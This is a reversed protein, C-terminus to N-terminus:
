SRRPRTRDLRSIIRRLEPARLRKEPTKRCFGVVFASADPGTRPITLLLTRLSERLDSVDQKAAAFDHTSARFGLNELYESLVELLRDRIRRPNRLDRSGQTALLGDRAILERLGPVRGDLKEVKKLTSQVLSALISDRQALLNEALRDPPICFLLLRRCWEGAGIPNWVVLLVTQSKQMSSIEDETINFWPTTNKSATVAFRFRAIAGGVEIVYTDSKYHRVGDHRDSSMLRGLVIRKATQAPPGGKETVKITPLRAQADSRRILEICAAAINALTSM